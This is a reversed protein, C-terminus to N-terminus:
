GLKPFASRGAYRGQNGLQEEIRLLQNYKAVREGRCPSGAKIQGVGTAVALDAITTDETEGSRHSIVASYNSDKAMQIAAFTETLTGIQNPKILIANAINERIGKIFIKTNTVFLDDGMLQIKNGLKESLLKWGAWDDEALGDEISIIPYFACLRVLLEVMEESTYTKNESHLVYRGGQHFESSALDLALYVDLGPKLGTDNIAQLMLEIVADCSPLNPAFGGEDGVTTPIGQRKLRTKLAHFIECGFRLAEKFTPAGVPVVMFEQFDINNDAHVGGNILNMLPVPLIYPSDADHCRLSQYLPLNVAKAAAHAAALSVALIANAGLRGKNATDDLTNLLDDIGRQHRVDHGILAARIETQIHHVAQTVGKGTYRSGGDRLELAERSGTSAGSPVAARGIAGSVLIVEAEITPNGRSDIIERAKVDKIEAM